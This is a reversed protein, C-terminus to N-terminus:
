LLKKLLWFEVNWLELENKDFPSHLRTVTTTPLKVAQILTIMLQGAFIYLFKIKLAPNFNVSQIMLFSYTIQLKIRIKYPEFQMCMECQVNSLSHANNKQLHYCHGFLCYNKVAMTERVCQAFQFILQSIQMLYQLLENKVSVLQQSSCFSVQRRSTESHYM